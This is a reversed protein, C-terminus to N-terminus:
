ALLQPDPLEFTKICTEFVPFPLWSEFGPRRDEFFHSKRKSPNVQSFQYIEWWNDFEIHIASSISSYDCLWSSSSFIAYFQFFFAGTFHFPSILFVSCQFM